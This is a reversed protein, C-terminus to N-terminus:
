ICDKNRNLFLRFLKKSTLPLNLYLGQKQELLIYIKQHTKDGVNLYLGQKQELAM